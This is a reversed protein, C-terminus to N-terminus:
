PRKSRPRDVDAKVEALPRKGYSTPVYGILTIKETRQAKAFLELYNPAAKKGPGSAPNVIAVIPVTASAAFLRDWDKSGDGAPYFYAPVLLRLRPADKEKAPDAASTHPAFAALGALFALFLSRM